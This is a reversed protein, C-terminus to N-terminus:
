RKKMIENATKRFWLIKVSSSILDQKLKHSFVNKQLEIWDNGIKDIKIKDAEIQDGENEIIGDKIIRLKIKRPKIMRLIIIKIKTM